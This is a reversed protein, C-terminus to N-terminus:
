WFLYRFVIPRIVSEGADMCAQVNTYGAEMLSECARHCDAERSLPLWTGSILGLFRRTGDPLREANAPWWGTLGNRPNTFHEPVLM